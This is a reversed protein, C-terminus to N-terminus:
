LERLLADQTHAKGHLGRWLKATPAQRPLEGSGCSRSASSTTLCLMCLCYSSHVSQEQARVPGLGCRHRHYIHRLLSTFRLESEADRIPKFNRLEKFSEVYWDRVQVNLQAAESMASEPYIAARFSKCGNQSIDHFDFFPLQIARELRLVTLISGCSFASAKGQASM